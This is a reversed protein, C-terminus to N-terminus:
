RPTTKFNLVTLSGGGPTQGNFNSEKLAALEDITPTMMILRFRGTQGVETILYCLDTFIEVIKSIFLYFPLLAIPVTLKKKM